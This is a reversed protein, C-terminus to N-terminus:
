IVLLFFFPCVSSWFFHGLAMECSYRWSQPLTGAQKSQARSNTCRWLSCFCSFPGHPLEPAYDACPLFCYFRISAGMFICLWHLMLVRALHMMNWKQCSFYWRYSCQWPRWVFYLLFRRGLSVVALTSLSFQPSMSRSGQNLGCSSAESFCSTILQSSSCTRCFPKTHKGPSTNLLFFHIRFLSLGYSATM